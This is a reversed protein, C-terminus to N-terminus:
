VNMIIARFLADCIGSAITLYMQVIETLAHFWRNKVTNPEGDCEGEFCLEEFIFGNILEEAIYSVIM